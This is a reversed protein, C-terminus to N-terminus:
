RKTIVPRFTLLWITDHPPNSSRVGSSCLSAQYSWAGGRVIRYGSGPGPGVPDTADVNDYPVYWDNCWEWLNGHMDYLGFPNPLYSGVDVINGVYPGTPCGTNPQGGDYNAETASDLCDGTSFMTETGARCAHEWEAETPLRFGRAGYPDGGNCIWDSHDYARPLGERISMWDCFAAAGYWSVHRVPLEERGAEVSFTDAAFSVYNSASGFYMLSDTAGDLGDVLFQGEVSCYGNDYAWQAMEAFRSNTVETEAMYFSRSLVVEHKVTLGMMFTDAPIEVFDDTPVYPVQGPGVTENESCGALLAAIFLVNITARLVRESIVRNRM